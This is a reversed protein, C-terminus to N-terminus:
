SMEVAEGASQSLERLYPLAITRIKLRKRIIETFDTLKKASLSYRGRKQQQDVYGREVLISTIRHATSSNIDAKSALDSISLPEESKLFVDLIEFAKNIADM